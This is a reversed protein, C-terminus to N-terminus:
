QHLHECPSQAGRWKTNDAAKSSSAQAAPMLGMSPKLAAAPSRALVTGPQAAARRRQLRVPSQLQGLRYLAAQRLELDRHPALLHVAVEAGHGGGIALPGAFARQRCSPQKCGGRTIHWARDSMYSSRLRAKRDTCLDASRDGGHTSCELLVPRCDIGRGPAHVGAVMDHGPSAKLHSIITLAGQGTPCASKRRPRTGGATSAAAPNYSCQSPLSPSLVLSPSACGYRLHRPAARPLRHAGTPSRLCTHSGGCVLAEKFRQEGAHACQITSTSPTSISTPTNVAVKHHLVRDALGEPLEERGVLPPVCEPYLTGGQSLRDRTHTHTHAHTSRRRYM